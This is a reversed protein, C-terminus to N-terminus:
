IDLTVPGVGRAVSKRVLRGVRAILLQDDFPKALFDKAGLTIATKVDEPSNRATLVLTPPLVLGFQKIRKLVTFGDMIPMNVDLVLGDPNLEKVRELGDSGNRASITWFGALDLRTLILELVMPDDEVVLIRPKKSTFSNLLACTEAPM